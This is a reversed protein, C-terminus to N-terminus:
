PTQALYKEILGTQAEWGQDHAAFAKDRRAFPLREFGSEAITLMTGGPVEALEFQVVTTPEKAYDIDPEVAFPHWRFSFRRMPEIRDVVFELTRGAYPAQSRAVELDVKTPAITAILRAGAVFTGDFEAGFWAGFRQAQSIAGWVRDLPAHLLIKKEIRNGPETM